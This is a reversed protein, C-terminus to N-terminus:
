EIRLLGSSPHLPPEPTLFAYQKQLPSLKTGLVWVLTSVVAQLLGELSWAKRARHAGVSM